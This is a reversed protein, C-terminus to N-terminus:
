NTAKHLDGPFSTGGPWQHSTAYDFTRNSEAKVELTVAVRPAPRESYGTIELWGLGM